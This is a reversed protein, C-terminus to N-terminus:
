LGNDVKALLRDFTYNGYAAKLNKMFDPLKAKHRSTRPASARRVRSAPSTKKPTAIKM